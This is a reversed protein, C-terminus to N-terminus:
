LEEIEKSLDAEALANDVKENIDEEFSFDTSGGQWNVVDESQEFEEEIIKQDPGMSYALPNVDLPEIKREEPPPASRDVLHATSHFAGCGLCRFSGKKDISGCVPCVSMDNFLKLVDEPM